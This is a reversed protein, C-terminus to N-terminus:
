CRNCSNMMSRFRADLSDLKEMAINFLTHRIQEMGQGQGQVDQMVGQLTLATNVVAQRIEHRFQELKTDMRTVHEMCQHQSATLRQLRQQISDDSMTTRGMEDLPQLIQPTTLNKPVSKALMM